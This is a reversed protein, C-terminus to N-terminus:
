HMGFLYVLAGTHKSLAMWAPSINVFTQGHEDTNTMTSPGPCPVVLGMALPGTHIFVMGLPGAHEQPLTIWHAYQYVIPIQSHHDIHKFWTGPDGLMQVHDPYPSQYPTSTAQHEDTNDTMGWITHVQVLPQLHHEMQELILSLSDCDIQVSAM